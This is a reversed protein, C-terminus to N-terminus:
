SSEQKELLLVIEYFVDHIMHIYMNYKEFLKSM